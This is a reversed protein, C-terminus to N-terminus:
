GGLVAADPIEYREDGVRVLHLDNERSARFEPYGDAQSTGAGVPIGMRFYIARSSGDPRRVVLTAYGGGARAVGFECQMMPQGAFQACAISGTADFQELGARLASDDPGTAVSGDPSVAPRLYEASVYGRPGGGLQQVDCWTRQDLRQCGLNDLITGPLYSTIVRAAISPQERLNLSGSVVTVEWNRPGGNEAAAPVAAVSPKGADPEWAYIGGDAMLSLYLRGDKLLYSRIFEAQATIHGDLSPPPCFARTAALPGFAFRGSAGNSGPEASWTGGARNCNLRMTVTGDDDLHMTYLSPDDPRLTGIADDMSQFEVLRWDTGALPNASSSASAQQTSQDAGAAIRLVSAAGAYTHRYALQHDSALAYSAASLLGLLAILINRM